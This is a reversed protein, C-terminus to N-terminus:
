VHWWRKQSARQAQADRAKREAKEHIIEEAQEIQWMMKKLRDFDPQEADLGLVQYTEHLDSQAKAFYEAHLRTYRVMITLM